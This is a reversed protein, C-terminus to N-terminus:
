TQMGHMPLINHCYNTSSPGAYGSHIRVVAGESDSSLAPVKFFGSYFAVLFCTLVDQDGRYKKALRTKTSSRQRRRGTSPLLYKWGNFQLVQLFLVDFSKMVMM